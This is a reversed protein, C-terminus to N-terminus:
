SIKMAAEGMSEGNSGSIDRHRGVARGRSFDRLIIGADKRSADAPNERNSSSATMATNPMMAENVMGATDDTM